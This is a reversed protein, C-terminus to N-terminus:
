CVFIDMSYFTYLKKKLHPHPTLMGVITIACVFLLFITYTCGKAAEQDIGNAEEEFREPVQLSDLTASLILLGSLFQCLDLLSITPM